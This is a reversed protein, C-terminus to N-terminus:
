TAGRLAWVFHVGGCWYSFSLLHLLLFFSAHAQLLPLLLLLILLLLLLLFLRARLPHLSAPTRLTNIGKIQEDLRIKM